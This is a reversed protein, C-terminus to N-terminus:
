PKANVATRLRLPNHSEILLWEFNSIWLDPEDDDQNQNEIGDCNILEQILDGLPYCGNTSATLKHGVESCNICQKYNKWQGDWLGQLMFYHDGKFITQSCECCEHKKKAKRKSENFVDPMECDCM